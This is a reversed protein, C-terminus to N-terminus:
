VFGSPACDKATKANPLDLAESVDQIRASDAECKGWLHIIWEIEAFCIWPNGVIRLRAMPHGTFCLPRTALQKAYSENPSSVTKIKPMETTWWFSYRTHRLCTYKELLQHAITQWDTTMAKTWVCFCESLVQSTGTIISTVYLVVSWPERLCQSVFLCFFGPSIKMGEGKFRLWKDEAEQLM